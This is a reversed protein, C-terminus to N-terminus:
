FAPEMAGVSDGTAPPQRLGVMEKPLPDAHVVALRRTARTLAVYLDSMGRESEAVIEAPEVLIVGDFELGKTEAVGLVAVLGDLPSTRDAVTSEPLAASLSRVLEETRAVPAIVALRGDGIAALESRVTDAVVAAVEGAPVQVAWPAVGEERMSRPPVVGPAASALVATAVEMIEAPTRYNVTLEAQRWRNAAHRDFVEAWTAPGWSAGTQALDGVVTMSRSPCRRFLVRWVMPSLEQAEDVIVHGFEWTRDIRAREAISLVTDEGAYRQALLEPDIPMDLRLGELVARAFRV